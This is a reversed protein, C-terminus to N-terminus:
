KKPLNVGKREEIEIIKKANFRIVGGGAPIDGIDFEVGDIKLIKGDKSDVIVTYKGM